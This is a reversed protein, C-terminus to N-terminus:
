ERSKSENDSMWRHYLPLFVESFNDESQDVAVDPARWGTAYVSPSPRTKSRSVGDRDEFEPVNQRQVQFQVAVVDSGWVANAVQTAYRRVQQEKELYAEVDDQGGYSVLKERLRELWDGGEYYGLELIVKHDASLGQWATAFRSALEVSQIAARPPFLNDTLMQVEIATADVWDTTREAGSEEVVARVSIAYDGNIPAPAFVSWSQGFLPLMYASLGEQGGPFLARAGASYPAIWLFSACIHIAALISAAVTVVRVWPSRTQRGSHKKM